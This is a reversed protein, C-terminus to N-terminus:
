GCVRARVVTAPVSRPRTHRPTGGEEGLILRRQTASSPLQPQAQQGIMTMPRSPRGSSTSSPYAQQRSYATVHGPKMTLHM